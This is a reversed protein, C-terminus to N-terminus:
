RQHANEGANFDRQPVDDAFGDALGDIFQEAAADMFLEAGVGIDIGIDGLALGIGDVPVGFGGGLAGGM